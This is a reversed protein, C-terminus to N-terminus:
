GTRIWHEWHSHACSVCIVLNLQALLTPSYILSIGDFYIFYNQQGSNQGLSGLKPKQDVENDKVVACCLIKKEAKKIRERKIPMETTELKESDNNNNNNNNNNHTSLSDQGCVLKEQSSM